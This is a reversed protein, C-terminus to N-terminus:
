FLRTTDTTECVDISKCAVQVSTIHFRSFFVKSSHTHFLVAKYVAQSCFQSNRTSQSLSFTFIRTPKLHIVLKEMENCSYNTQTYFVFQSRDNYVFCQSGDGFTFAELFLNKTANM